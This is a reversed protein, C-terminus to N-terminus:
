STESRPDLDNHLAASERAARSIFRSRDARSYVIAFDFVRGTPDRITQELVMLPAGERIDLVPATIRDALVCGVVFESEGLVLGADALLAYWDSVFPTRRLREAEPFLVYNTAMGHPEDGLLAVYDLRLCPTGPAVLLQRAVIRPAPVTVCGLIRPRMRRNFISDQTPSAAGHAEELLTTVSSTVVHTGIGQTREILGETRLLSLVERVTGRTAGHTAMLDSESPLHGDPYDDCLVSIRLLDRLRRIEHTRDRHPGRVVDNM